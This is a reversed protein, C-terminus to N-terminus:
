ILEIEINEKNKNNISLQKRLNNAHIYEPKKFYNLLIYVVDSFNLDKFWETGNIRNKSFHTHMVRELSYLYTSESVFQNIIKHGGGNSGSLSVLRQNFDKTIGIKILNADNELIYIYYINDKM